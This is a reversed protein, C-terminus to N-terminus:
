STYKVKSSGKGVQVYERNVLHACIRGMFVLIDLTTKQSLLVCMVVDGGSLRFWLWVHPWGPMYYLEICTM